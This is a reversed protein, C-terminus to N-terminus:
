CASRSVRAARLHESVLSEGAGGALNTVIPARKLFVTTTLLAGLLGGVKTYDDVRVQYLQSYSIKEPMGRLLGNVLVVSRLRRTSSVTRATTSPLAPPSVPWHAIRDANYLGDILQKSRSTECVCGPWLLDRRAGSSLPGLRAKGSGGTSPSSRM